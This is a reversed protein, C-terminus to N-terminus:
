KDPGVFCLSKLFKIGDKERHKNAQTQKKLIFECPWMVVSWM